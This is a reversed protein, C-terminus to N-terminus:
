LNATLKEYFLEVSPIHDIFEIKVKSFNICPNYFSPDYSYTDMLRTNDIITMKAKPNGFILLPYVGGTMTSGVHMCNPNTVLSCWEQYDKVHHVNKKSCFPETEKGFIFTTFGNMSLKDILEMWFHDPINKEKWAGRKRVVLAIFPKSVKNEDIEVFDVNNILHKDREYNKYFPLYPILRDSVEGAALQYFISGDLYDIVESGEERDLNKFDRWSIVNNFINTYLCKREPVCVITDDVSINSTSLQDLLYLRTIILETAIETVAGPNALDNTSTGDAENKSVIIYKM